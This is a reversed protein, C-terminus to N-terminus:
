ALCVLFILSDICLQAVDSVGTVSVPTIEDSRWIGRETRVVVIGRAQQKDRVFPFFLVRCEVRTCKGKELNFDDSNCQNRNKNPLVLTRMGVANDLWNFAVALIRRSLM